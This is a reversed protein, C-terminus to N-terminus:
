HTGAAAWHARGTIGGLPGAGHARGTIGGRPGVGHRSATAYWLYGSVRLVALPAIMANWLTSYITPCGGLSRGAAGAAGTAGGVGAPGPFPFPPLGPDPNQTSLRHPAAAPAAAAEGLAGGCKQLAAPTMWVELRTGGWSSAIMGVAMGRDQQVLSVGHYFCMASMSAVNRMPAAGPIPKANPPAPRGWPISVDLNTQPETVNYYEASAAVQSPLSAM